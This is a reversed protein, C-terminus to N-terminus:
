GVGMEIFGNKAQALDDTKQIQVFPKDIQRIVRAPVGVAVSYPAVDKTVVAGAGIVSHDGIQVGPLITANAGIWVGKGIVV